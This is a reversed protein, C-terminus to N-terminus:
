DAADIRWEVAIDGRLRIGSASLRYVGPGPLWIRASDEV